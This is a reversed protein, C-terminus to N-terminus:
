WIGDPRVGKINVRGLGEELDRVRQRHEIRYVKIQLCDDQLTAQDQESHILDDGFKLVQRRIASGGTLVNQGEYVLTYMMKGHFGHKATCDWATVEDDNM